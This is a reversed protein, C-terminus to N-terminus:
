GNRRFVVEGGVITVDTTTGLLERPDDLSTIDRSLVALDARLGPAITGRDTELFNAYASGWTAARIATALDVMEQANWAGNGDLDARTIATYLWTMPDM